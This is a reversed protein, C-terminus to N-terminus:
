IIKEDMVTIELAAQLDKLNCVWQEGGSWSLEGYISGLQLLCYNCATSSIHGIISLYIFSNNSSACLLLNQPATYHVPM